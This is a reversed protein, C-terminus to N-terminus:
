FVILCIINLHKHFVHRSVTKRAIHIVLRDRSRIHHIAANKGEVLAPCGDCKVGRKCVITRAIQQNSHVFVGRAVGSTIEVVCICRISYKRM